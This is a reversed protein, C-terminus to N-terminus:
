MLALVIHHVQSRTRPQIKEMVAVPQRPPWAELSLSIHGPRLPPYGTAWVGAGLASHRGLPLPGPPPSLVRVGVPAPGGSALFPRTQLLHQGPSCTTANGGAVPNCLATCRTSTRGHAPGPGSSHIAVKRPGAAWAARPCAGVKRGGGSHGGRSSRAAGRRTHELRLRGLM